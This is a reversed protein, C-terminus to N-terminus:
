VCIGWAAIVALLDDTDVTGDGDIDLDPDSSGWDGVILLLDNVDVIGDANLDEPCDMGCAM